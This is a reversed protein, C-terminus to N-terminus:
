IRASVGIKIEAEEEVEPAFDKALFGCRRFISLLAAAASDAL